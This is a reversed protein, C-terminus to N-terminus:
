LYGFLDKYFRETITKDVKACLKPHQQLYELVAQQSQSPYAIIVELMTSTIKAMLNKPHAGLVSNLFREMIPKCLIQMVQSALPETGFTVFDKIFKLVTNYALMEQVQLGNMLAVAFITEVIPPPFQEVIGKKALIIEWLFIFYEHILDPYSELSELSIGNAIFVQSIELCPTNLDADVTKQYSSNTARRFLSSATSILCSQPNRSFASAVKQLLIVSAADIFSLGSKCCEKLLMSLESLITLDDVFRDLLGSIIEYFRVSTIQEQETLPETSESLEIGIPASSSGKCFSKLYEIHIIISNYPEMHKKPHSPDIMILDQELQAIIGGVMVLIRPSAEETPLASTIYSMAQFIRSKVNFSAVSLAQVCLNLIEDCHDSLQSQCVCCIEVLSMAAPVPNFCDSLENILFRFISPLYDPNASFWEALYGITSALTIRFQQSGNNKDNILNTVALFTREEFILPVIQNEEAPISATFAKLHFILAEM